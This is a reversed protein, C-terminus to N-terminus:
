NKLIRTSHRKLFMHLVLLLTVNEHMSKIQFSFVHVVFFENCKNPINNCPSYNQFIIKLRVTALVKLCRVIFEITHRYRSEVWGTHQVVFLAFYFHFLLLYFKDSYRLASQRHFNGSVTCIKSTIIRSTLLAFEERHRTLKRRGFAVYRKRWRETVTTMTLKFNYNRVYFDDSFPIAQYFGFCLFIEGVIRCNNYKLLNDKLRM